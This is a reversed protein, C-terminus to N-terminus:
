FTFGLLSALFHRWSIFDRLLALFYADLNQHHVLSLGGPGHGGLPKVCPLDRYGPFIM